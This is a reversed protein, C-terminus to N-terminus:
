PKSEFRVCGFDPLTMFEDMQSPSISPETRQERGTADRQPGHWHACADCRPVSMYAVDPVFPSAEAITAAIRDVRYRNACDKSCDSAIEEAAARVWDKVIAM